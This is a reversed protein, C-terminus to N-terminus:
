NCKYQEVNSKQFTKSRFVEELKGMFDRSTDSIEVNVFKNDTDFYKIERPDLEDNKILNQESLNRNINENKDNKDNKVIYFSDLFSKLPITRRCCNKKLGEWFYIFKNWCRSNSRSKEFGFGV